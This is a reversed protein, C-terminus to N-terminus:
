FTPAPPPTAKRTRKQRSVIMRLVGYTVFSIFVIDLLMGLTLSLWPLAKDSIGPLCRLFWIPWLFFWVAFTVSAEDKFLARVFLLTIFIGATILIGTAFSALLLKM